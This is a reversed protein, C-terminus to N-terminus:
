EMEVKGNFKSRTNVHTNFIVTNQKNWIMHNHDYNWTMQHKHWQTLLLKFVNYVPKDWFQMATTINQQSQLSLKTIKTIQMKVIAKFYFLHFSSCMTTKLFDHKWVEFGHLQNNNADRNLNFKHGSFLVTIPIRTATSLIM